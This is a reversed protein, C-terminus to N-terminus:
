DLATLRQVLSFQSPMMGPDPIEYSGPTTNFWQYKANFPAFQGTQSVQGTERLACTLVLATRSSPFSKGISDAGDNHVTAEFMDIEPAARGVFTGDSRKPGPHSTDDPCTCASFRQGPLYSLVGGHSKDGDVTAAEPLGNLTQNALTGVDCDDYTSPPM